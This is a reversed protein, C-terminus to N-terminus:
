VSSVFINSFEVCFLYSYQSGTRITTGENNKKTYISEMEKRKENDFIKKDSGSAEYSYVSHRSLETNYGM